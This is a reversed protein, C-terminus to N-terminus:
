VDILMWRGTFVEFPGPWLFVRELIWFLFDTETGAASLIVQALILGSLGALIYGATRNTGATVAFFAAYALFGALAFRLALAFPYGQLGQPLSATAVSVLAGLLVGGTVIALLVGGAGFRLLAYHWRPLPLSLAYVHRGTHDPGWAILALFLGTGGALLPFLLGWRQVDSLAEAVRWRTITPDGLSQVTLMPIAFGALALFLVATRGWRWQTLLIQQFM